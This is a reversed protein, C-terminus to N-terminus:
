KWDPTECMKKLIEKVDAIIFPPHGESDFSLEGGEAHIPLIGRNRFKVWTVDASYADFRIEIHVVADNQM